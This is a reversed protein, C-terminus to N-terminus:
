YVVGHNGAYGTIHDTETFGYKTGNNFKYDRWKGHKGWYFGDSVIYGAFTNTYM